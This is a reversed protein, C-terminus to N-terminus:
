VGMLYIEMEENVTKGTLWVAQERRHPKKPPFIEITNLFKIWVYTLRGCMQGCVCFLCSHRIRKLFKMSDDDKKGHRLVAFLISLASHINRYFDFFAIVGGDLEIIKWYSFPEKQRFLYISMVFPRSLFFVM